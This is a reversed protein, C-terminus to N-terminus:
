IIALMIHVPIVLYKEDIRLESKSLIIGSGFHYLSQFDDKTIKEQYKVEAALLKNDSKVIIDTERKNKWYFIIDNFSMGPHKERVFRAFHVVAASEILSPTIEAEKLNLLRNFIHYIFPDFFYIKKNKNFDPIKKNLDLFYIVLFVFMNELDEVYASVTKHSKIEADKAFSDFSVATSQKLIATRLIQKLIKEQKGWKVIDGIVWRSYIEYIYDPIEKGTHFENISLPFGGTLLYQNFITKLEKNFVLTNKVASNIDATSISNIKELKKGLDPRVLSIYENFTLPLLLYDKGYRGTRGPLLDFGKKIDLTHSGTLFLCTTEMEGSDVLIKITKQWDKIGSIEDLFVYKENIGLSDGYDHYIRLTKLLEDSDLISDCNIYFVAREQIGSKILSEIILKVLTTKGIQRPGRLSYLNGPVLKIDSLIRPQWRYKKERFDRLHKDDKLYDKGKWWINHINFDSVEM